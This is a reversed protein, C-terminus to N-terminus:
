KRANPRITVHQLQVNEASSWVMDILDRSIMARPPGEYLGGLASQLRGASQDLAVALPQDASFVNAFHRYTVGRAM